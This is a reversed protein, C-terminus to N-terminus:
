KWGEEKEDIRELDLRAKKDKIEEELNNVEDYLGALKEELFSIEDELEILKSLRM